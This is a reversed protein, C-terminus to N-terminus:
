TKRILRLFFLGELSKRWTGEYFQVMCSEESFYFGDPYPTVLAIRRHGKEWLYDLIKNMGDWMNCEIVPMSRSFSISDGYTAAVVPLHYNKGTAELYLGAITENPM